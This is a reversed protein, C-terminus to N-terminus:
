EWSACKAGIKTPQLGVCKKSCVNMGFNWTYTFNWGKRFTESHFTRQHMMIPQKVTTCFSTELIQHIMWQAHLKLCKKTTEVKKWEGLMPCPTVPCPSVTVEQLINFISIFNKQNKKENNHKQQNQKNVLIANIHFTTLYFISQNISKYM